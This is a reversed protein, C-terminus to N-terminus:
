EDRLVKIALECVGQKWDNCLKSLRQNAAYFFEVRNSADRHLSAHPAFQAVHTRNPHEWRLWGMKEALFIKDENNM